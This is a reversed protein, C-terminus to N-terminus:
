RSTSELQLKQEGELLAQGCKIQILPHHYKGLPQRGEFIYTETNIKFPEREDVFTNPVTNETTTTSKYKQEREHSTGRWVSHVNLFRTNPNPTCATM